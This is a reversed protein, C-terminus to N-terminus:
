FYENYKLLSKEQWLAEFVSRFSVNAYLNINEFYATDKESTETKRPFCEYGTRAPRKKPELSDSCCM